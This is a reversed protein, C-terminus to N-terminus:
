ALQAERAVEVGAVDPVPVSPGWSDAAREPAVLRRHSPRASSSRATLAAWQHDVRGPVTRGTDSWQRALEAFDLEQSVQPVTEEGCALFCGV